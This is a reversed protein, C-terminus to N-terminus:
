QDGSIHYLKISKGVVAAPKYNELWRYGENEKLLEVSIAVWGSVQVYPKLIKTDPLGHLNLDASGLYALAVNSINSSKLVAALRGLDQGWDLNSDVLVWDAEQGAFENFYALYDPNVCIAIVIQWVLLAAVVSKSLKSKSIRLLTEGAHGSIISMLPYIGLIHRVGDHISIPLCVVFFCIITFGISFNRWDPDKRSRVTFWLGAFTLIILPIPTKMALVVPFYYWVPENRMKGLVFLQGMGHTQNKYRLDLLGRYIETLPFIPAEVIEYARDRMPGHSGVIRDIIEHPREEKTTLPGTTFRYATWMTMFAVAGSLFLGCLLQRRLIPFLSETKNKKVCRSVVIAGMCAPLFLFNSFKSVLACGVTVGLILSHTLGPRSQWLVFSFLATFLFAAGAMDTTALGSHGLIPPLTTFLIVALLAAVSGFLMRTWLWVISTTLFFFPLVGLRAVSLNRTYSGGYHLIANGQQWAKQWNLKEDTLRSGSVYLGLAVAIRGIPPHLQEITYSKYQLWEMGTAVHFPEDHTQTLTGYTATIQVAGLFGFLASLFLSVADRSVKM